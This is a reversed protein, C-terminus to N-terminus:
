LRDDLTADKRRIMGNEYMENKLKERLPISFLTVVDEVDIGRNECLSIIIDMCPINDNFSKREIYQSFLESNEFLANDNEIEHFNDETIIEIM